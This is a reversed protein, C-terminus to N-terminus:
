LFCRSRIDSEWLKLLIGYPGRNILRVPYSNLVADHAQFPFKVGLKLLVKDFRGFCRHKFSANSSAAVRLFAM